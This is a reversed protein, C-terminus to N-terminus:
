FPDGSACLPTSLADPYRYVSAGTEMNVYSIKPPTGVSFNAAAYEGEPWFQGGAVYNQAMLQLEHTYPRRWDDRGNFEMEKLDKCYRDHQGYDGAVFKTSDIGPEYGVNSMRTYFRSWVLEYGSHSYGTNYDGKEEKYGLFDMVVDRPPASYMITKGNDLTQEIFGLCPKGDVNSQGPPCVALKEGTVFNIQPTVQGNLEAVLTFTGKSTGKVKNDATVKFCSIEGCSEKISTWTVKATVEELGIPTDVKQYVSLDFERGVLEENVQPDTSNEGPPARHFLFSLEGADVDGGESPPTESGTDGSGSEEKGTDDEGGPKSEEKNDESDAGGSGSDADSGSGSKDAENGDTDGPTGTDTEGTPLESGTEPQNNTALDLSESDSCGTVLLLMISLAAMKQNRNATKISYTQGM